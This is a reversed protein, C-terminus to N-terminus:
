PKALRKLFDDAVSDPEQYCRSASYFEVIRIGFDDFLRKRDQMATQPPHFPEGMVELIGWRGEQCVLFDPERRSNRIHKPDYHGVAM